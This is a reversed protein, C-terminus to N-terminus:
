LAGFGKIGFVAAFGNDEGAKNGNHTGKGRKNGAHPMHAIAAKETKVNDAANGPNGQKGIRSEPESLSLDDFFVQRENQEGDDNNGYQGGNNFNDPCTAYSAGCSKFSNIIVSALCHRM